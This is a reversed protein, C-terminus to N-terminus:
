YVGCIGDISLEEIIIEELVQPEEQSAKGDSQDPPAVTSEQEIEM